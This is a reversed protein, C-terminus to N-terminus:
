MGGVFMRRKRGTSQSTTCISDKTCKGLHEPISQHKVTLHVARGTGEQFIQYKVQEHQRDDRVRMMRWRYASPSEAITVRYACFGDHKGFEKCKANCRKDHGTNDIVMKNEGWDILIPLAM